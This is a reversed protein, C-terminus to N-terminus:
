INEENKVEYDNLNSDDTGYEPVSENFTNVIIQVILSSAFILICGILISVLKNKIDAKGEANSFMIKIGTFIIGAFAAVSSKVM